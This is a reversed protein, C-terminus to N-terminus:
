QELTPLSTSNANLPRLIQNKNEVFWKFTEQEEDFGSVQPTRVRAVVKAPDGLLELARRIEPDMCNNAWEDRLSVFDPWTGQGVIGAERAERQYRGPWNSAPPADPGVWAGDYRHTGEDFIFEQTYRSRRDIFLLAVPQVWVRGLGLAKGMGLKHRYTNSPQLAYCLLGLERRSLNDFDVHAYFALGAKLPTVLSKQEPRETADKTVWPAHDDRFRHLYFKRGQPRANAPNLNAKAIYRQQNGQSRFYFSPYPPKPSDLIKLVVQPQYADPVDSELLGFSIRVRGALARAQRRSTDAELGQEVFGFLQEAITLQRRSPSFPLLEPSLRRFYEFTDAPSDAPISKRWISSIAVDSIRGGPDATFCVIDGDRLRVKPMDPDETRLQGKLYFPKEKDRRTREDALRHFRDVAADADFTPAKEMEPPFPIFIEHKKTTPIEKERGNIGLVRLIGRTYKAKDEDPLQLYQSEPIPQAGTAAQQGLLQGRNVHPHQVPVTTGEIQCSGRLQLYWYERNDASFSKPNVRHLFSGPVLEVASRDATPRYGDVYVKLYVHPTTHTFLQRYGGAVQACERDRDWPLHPLALPRLRYRLRGHSDEEKVIMGLAPLNDERMESRRSYQARTLVRLASNSAAEAVSAFLGRLSSSPLASRGDLKFPSVEFVGKYPGEKIEERRSGVVVPDETVVRYMMRGSYAPGGGSDQSVYRDHTVHGPVRSDFAEVSLDEARSGGKSPVFHYPNHFRNM